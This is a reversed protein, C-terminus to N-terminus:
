GYVAILRFANASEAQNSFTMSAHTEATEKAIRIELRWKSATQRSVAMKEALAGQTMSRMM